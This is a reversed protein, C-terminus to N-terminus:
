NVSKRNAFYTAIAASLAEVTYPEAVVDPVIGIQELTASTIPGIAAVASRELIARGRGQALRDFNEVTSSSTFTVMDVDGLSEFPPTSSPVVTRYLAVVDVTAGRRRLEDPLIERAREARAILVRSGRVAGLVEILGEARYERPTAAVRVGTREIVEATAAGIAAIRVGALTRIDRGAALYGEFFRQAGNPSTLLLWDYTGATTFAREVAGADAPGVIEIVPYAVAEGGLAELRRALADAQPRARTVVIRRGFLPLSEYWGIRDALGAVGGVVMVVPPRLEKAEARKAIDALTGHVTQQRPTTGWRVAAAPTEPDMGAGILQSTLEAARLMAMLFVLTGGTAALAAWDYTAPDRGEGPRGTVITVSSAHDRHTLPIGAYAPVAVASTVGPVVEFPVGASRCAEAEEGGRGFVFPDGGKLRVVMRGTRAHEVLLREIEEQRVTTRGHRKGVLVCEAGPPALALLRDNVLSDYLVVDARGLCEAGKVTILGPDGPGAGVLYVKGVKGIM